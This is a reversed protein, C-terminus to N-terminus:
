RGEDELAGQRLEEDRDTEVELSPVGVPRGNEDVAVFTFYSASTRTRNGTRPEEKDVKIRIRISTRGAEYVWSEAVAIHGRPIPELFDIDGVNATVCAEGAFRMASMAGVEDMIRMVVGGHATDYNNTDNPQISKRNEIYTDTVTPV